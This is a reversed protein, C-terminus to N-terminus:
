DELTVPISSCIITPSLPRDFETDGIVVHKTGGYRVATGMPGHKLVTGVKGCDPLRFHQGPLLTALPQTTM